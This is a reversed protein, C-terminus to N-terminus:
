DSHENLDKALKIILHDTRNLENIITELKKRLNGLDHRDEIEVLIGIMIKLDRYLKGLKIVDEKLTVLHPNCSNYEIGQTKCVSDIILSINEAKM